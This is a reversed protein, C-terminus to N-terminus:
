IIRAYEENMLLPIHGFVDHFMDPEPLYDLQSLERLWITSPFKRQALLEFFEVVEILGPVVVVEFGTTKQFLVNMQEFDPIAQGHLVSPM